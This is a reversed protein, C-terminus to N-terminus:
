EVSLAPRGDDFQGHRHGIVDLVEVVEVTAVTREAIECWFFELIQL